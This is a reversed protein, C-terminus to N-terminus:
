FYKHFSSIFDKILWFILFSLTGALHVNDKGLKTITLQVNTHLAFKVHQFTNQFLANESGHGAAM